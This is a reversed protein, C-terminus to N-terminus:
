KSRNQVVEFALNISAIMSEENAVGKGAIDLATGHDPSTRIFPLGLTINVGNYFDLVKVPILAQDHYMCIAVDYTKRNQNSFLTDAPHPGTVNIKFTKLRNIAPIIIKEEQDGLTGREGAHPNLAAIAINPTVIGFDDKLAQNVLIAKKVILDESLSSIASLLNVHGTIPVVRLGKCSLMMIPEQNHNALSGLFETHGPYKFGSEYLISKQIPNTILGAALNLNVHNVATQISSIVDQATSESPKGTVVEAKMPKDYIPLAYSFVNKAQRPHNIKKIPIKKKLTKILIAIRNFDELLYFPSNIKSRNLWAKATIEWGIGAPEGM